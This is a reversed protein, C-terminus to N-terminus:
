GSHGGCRSLMGLNWRGNCLKTLRSSTPAAMSLSGTASSGCCTSSPKLQFGLRRRAILYADLDDHLSM